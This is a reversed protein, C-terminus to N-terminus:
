KRKRKRTKVAKNRRIVAYAIGVMGVLLPMLFINVFKVKYGLREIDSRLNRRVEKLRKNIRRKEERFKQIEEEQEPSFVFQQSADKRSELEKLKENTEEFRKMLEQEQLRWREQAEKELELVRTFPREFKGRARINILEENGTMLECANLLFNLNDNYIQFVDQGMFNQYDLYNSDHLMDVDAVVIVSGPKSSRTLRDTEAPKEAGTEDEALSQEPPEDPFATDFLGTLSVAIDHRVNSSEFDQRIKEIKKTRITFRNILQSEPSSQILPAYEIDSNENDREIVGTLAFLMTELQGTTPNDGNFGNGEITLWVPNEVIQNNRDMFQTAYGFDVLVKQDNMRIGWKEFLVDISARKEFDPGSATMAFPDVFIILRGGNLVYQDVAYLLSDSLNKPYILILMDLDPELTKDAMRLEVLDYTKRLETVFHWPPREPEDGPMPFPSPPNGFVPIGSMLGVKPRVPVQVKSIAHTIDYELQKERGPDMFEITEEQDAAIVVVGFYVTDGTPLDIGRIGYQQAWEEEESDMEPNIVEVSVKGNSFQEYERLFDIMRPAYNKIALPLNEVKKSYFVKINVDEELNSIIKKSADSLSFLKEATADWRVNFQSFIVNVLVIILFVLFLGGVSFLTKSIDKKKDSM